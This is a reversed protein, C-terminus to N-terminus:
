FPHPLFLHPQFSNSRSGNAGTSLKLRNDKSPNAPDILESSYYLIEMSAPPSSTFTIFSHLCCLALAIHASTQQRFYHIVKVTRLQYTAAAIAKHTPCSGFAIASL